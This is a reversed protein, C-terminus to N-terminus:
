GFAQPFIVWLLKVIELLKTGLYLVSTSNIREKIKRKKQSINKKEMLVLGILMAYTGNSGPPICLNMYIM